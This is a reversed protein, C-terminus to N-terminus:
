RPVPVVHAVPNALAGWTARRHVGRAYESDSYACKALAFHREFADTDLQQLSYLAAHEYLDRSFTAGAASGDAVAIQICVRAYGAM